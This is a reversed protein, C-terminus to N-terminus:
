GFSSVGPQVMSALLKLLNFADLWDQPHKQSQFQPTIENLKLIFNKIQDAKSGSSLGTFSFVIHEKIYLIFM